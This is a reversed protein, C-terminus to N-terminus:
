NSPNLIAPSSPSYSAIAAANREDPSPDLEDYNAFENPKLTCNSVMITNDASKRSVIVGACAILEALPYDDVFGFNVGFVGGYIYKFPSDLGEYVLISDESLDLKFQKFSFSCFASFDIPDENLYTSDAYYCCFTLLDGDKLFPFADIFVQSADAVSIDWDEVGAFVPFLEEIQSWVALRPSSGGILVESVGLLFPNVALEPLSGSSVCLSAPFAVDHAIFDKRSLLGKMINHRMFANFDSEHPRKDEYAFKFFKRKAMKYRAVATNYRCRQAMQAYTKPNSPAANHAKTVQQGKLRNFVLSGVKGRAYGLLMNNKSM